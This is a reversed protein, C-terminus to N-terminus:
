LFVEKALKILHDDENVDGSITSLKAGAESQPALSFEFLVRGGLVEVCCEELITLFKPQRLQDRHFQYYVEIKAEGNQNVSPKASQLFAGISSNRQRVRQIFEEWRLLLVAGNLLEGTEVMRSTTVPVPHHIEDPIQLNVSVVNQIVVTETLSSFIEATSEKSASKRSEPPSAPKAKSSPSVATVSSGGERDKAKFVLELAKLELALFPLAVASVLLSMFQTLLFHSIKKSFHPTEQTTVAQILDDHLLELLQQHFYSQDSGTIRLEQFLAVVQQEDKKVVADLLEWIKQEPASHLLNQVRDLTLKSQGAAVSELLKVGDRFSGDAVRSIQKLAAQDYEIREKELIQGLAQTLEVETAKSFQVTMCRSLITAPVKHLETTALIFVLHAPPEELIKLLANFAETTLMHVEDLIFVSVKGEQPPLYAREKLQRIDDIGRHSAADLETVVFSSGRYIRQVIESAPVPEQLQPNLTKKAKIAAAPAQFFLTEVAAENLPENLIAAVIRAASTKGTGKPGTFLLAHPFSGSEMLSQLNQRVSGLHLGAVTTPRYQRYWSM